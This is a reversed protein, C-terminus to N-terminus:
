RRRPQYEIHIHDSEEIVDFDISLRQRIDGVVEQPTIDEPLNRSRIDVASGAYHLSTTSHKGDNCSTIVLEVGHSNYVGEAVVIAFLLNSTLGGLSVSNDKLRMMEQVETEM